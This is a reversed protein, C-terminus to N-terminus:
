LKEKPEWPFLRFATSEILFKKFRDLDQPVRTSNTLYGCHTKFSEGFQLMDELFYLPLASFMGYPGEENPDAFTAEVIKERYGKRIERLVPKLGTYEKLQDVYDLIISVIVKPIM